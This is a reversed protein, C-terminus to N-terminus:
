LFRADRDRIWASIRNPPPALLGFDGQASKYPSKADVNNIRVHNHLSVWNIMMSLLEPQLHRGCAFNRHGSRSKPIIVSPLGGSARLDRWLGTNPRDSPIPVMICDHPDAAFSRSPPVMRSRPLDVGLRDTKARRHERWVAVSSTHIVHAEISHARWWRALWFGDRGAEFAVAIRKVARGAKAAERSWRQLVEFLEEADPVLNKLPHREIGQGLATLPRSLDYRQPM